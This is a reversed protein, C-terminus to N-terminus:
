ALEERLARFVRDLVPWPALGIRLADGVGPVAVLARVAIRHHRLRAGLQRSDRVPICLFNAQSPLPKLGISELADRFRVRLERVEGAISAMWARDHTLAATAAREAFANVKYPGRAKLIEGILQPAGVGFGVRLGALGFSKSCTRTAFVHPHTVAEATFVDDAYEAYAEDIIVVGPANAIVRQVAARSHVTGTPNNPTCLYIIRAETELMAEADVDGDRTVAVPVPVLGNTRALVPVMAFTPSPHAIREGPEALARLAADLLDDSGCGSIVAAPDVGVYSAIAMALPKSDVSPYESLDRPTAARVAELASPAPGWQNTNDSLDIDVDPRESRYAVISEYGARPRFSPTM